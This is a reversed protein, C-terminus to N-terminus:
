DLGENRRAIKQIASSQRGALYMIRATHGFWNLVAVKITEVM